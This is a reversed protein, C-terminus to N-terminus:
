RADVDDGGGPTSRHLRCSNQRLPFDLDKMLLTFILFPLSSNIAVVETKEALPEKSPQIKKSTVRKQRDDSILLDM